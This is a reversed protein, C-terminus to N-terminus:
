IENGLVEEIDTDVLIIRCYWNHLNIYTGKFFYKVTIISLLMIAVCVTETIILKYINDNKNM